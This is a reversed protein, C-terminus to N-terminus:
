KKVQKNEAPKAEKTESYVEVLGTAILKNAKQDNIDIVSGALVEGTDGVFGWLVKVKMKYGKFSLAARLCGM